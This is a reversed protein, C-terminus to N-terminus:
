HIDLSEFFFGVSVVIPNPVELFGGLFPVEVPGSFVIGDSVAFLDSGAEISYPELV